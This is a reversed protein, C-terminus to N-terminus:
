KKDDVNKESEEERKNEEEEAELEKKFEKATLWIGVFMLGFVPIAFELLISNM